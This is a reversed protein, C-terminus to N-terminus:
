IPCDVAGINEGITFYCDHDALTFPTAPDAHWFQTFGPDIDVYAARRFRDFLRGPALHGSINVLLDAAAALEQLRRWPVGETRQSGALLLASREGLGARRTVARFWDRNASQEFDAGAGAADVCAAPAIQEVFWVDCGLRRLGAVWSLRVWAEGGNRCKNALAGAVVVVCM